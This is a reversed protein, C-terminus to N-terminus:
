RKLELMFIMIDGQPQAPQVTYINHWNAKCWIEGGLNASYFRNSNDDEWITHEGKKDKFKFNFSSRNLIVDYYIGYNDQGLPFFEREISGTGQTWAWLIPNAFNNKNDYHIRVKKRM